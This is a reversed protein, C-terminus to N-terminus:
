DKAGFSLYNQMFKSKSVLISLLSYYNLKFILTSVIRFIIDLVIHRRWIESVIAFVLSFKKAVPLYDKVYLLASTNFYKVILRRRRFLFKGHFLDISSEIAYLVKVMADSLPTSIWLIEFDSRGYLSVGRYRITTDRTQLSEELPFFTLCLFFFVSSLFPFFSFATPFVSVNLTNWPIM